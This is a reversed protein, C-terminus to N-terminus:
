SLCVNEVKGRQNFAHMSSDIIADEDSSTEFDQGFTNSKGKRFHM